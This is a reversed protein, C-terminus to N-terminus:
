KGEAKRERELLEKARLLRVRKMYEAQAQEDGGHARKNLEELDMTEYDM